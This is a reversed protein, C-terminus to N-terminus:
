LKESTNPVPTTSVESAEGHPSLEAFLELATQTSLEGSLLRPFVSVLRALIAAQSESEVEVMDARNLLNVFVRLNKHEEARAQRYFPNDFVKVHASLYPTNEAWNRQQNFDMLWFAFEQAKYLDHSEVPFMGLSWVQYQTRRNKADPGPVGATALPLGQSHLRLFDSVSGFKMAAQDGKQVDEPMAVSRALDQGLNLVHPLSGGEPQADESQEMMLAIAETVDEADEFAFGWTGTEEDRIADLAADLEAWTTPAAKVGKAQLMEPNYILANTTFFFPRAKLQGDVSCGQFLPGYVDHKVSWSFLFQERPMWDEVSTLDTTRDLRELQNGEVIAFVPREGGELAQYLEQSSSFNRPQIDLHKREAEFEAIMSELHRAPQEDLSYWLPIPFRDDKPQESPNPEAVAANTLSLALACTAVIRRFIKM